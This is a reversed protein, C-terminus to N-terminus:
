QIPAWFWGKSVRRTIGQDYGWFINKKVWCSASPDWYITGYQSHWSSRNSPPLPFLGADYYDLETYYGDNRLLQVAAGGLFAAMYRPCGSLVFLMVILTAGIM